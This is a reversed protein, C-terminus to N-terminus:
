QPWSEGELWEEALTREEDPDVKALERLLSERQSREERLRVLGARIARSRNPFEGEAVWRDVEHLLETEITVAVKSTAM